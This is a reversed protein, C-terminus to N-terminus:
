KHYCKDVEKESTKQKGILCYTLIQHFLVERSIAATILEGRRKLDEMFRGTLKSWQEKHFKPVDWFKWKNNNTSISLQSFWIM